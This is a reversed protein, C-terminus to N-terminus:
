HQHQHPDHAPTGPQPAATGAKDAATLKKIFKAPEKNFDKLCGKCCLKIERGQYTFVYPDGMGGLKEGSVVCTKLPYPKSQETKGAGRAVPVLAALALACAASFIIKSVQHMNNM